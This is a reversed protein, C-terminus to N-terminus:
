GGNADADTDEEGEPHTGGSDTMFGYENFKRGCKGCKLCNVWCEVNKCERAPIYDLLIDM